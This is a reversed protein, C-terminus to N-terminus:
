ADEGLCLFFGVGVRRLGECIGFWLFGLGDGAEDAGGGEEAGGGVEADFGVGGM